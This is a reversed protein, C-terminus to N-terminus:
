RRSLVVWGRSVLDDDGALTDLAWLAPTRVVPPTVSAPLTAHALRPAPTHLAPRRAILRRATRTFRPTREPRPDLCM